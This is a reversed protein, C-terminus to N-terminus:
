CIVISALREYAKAFQRDERHMCYLRGALKLLIAPLKGSSGAESMACTM